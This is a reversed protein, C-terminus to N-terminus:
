EGIINWRYMKMVILIQTKPNSIEVTIKSYDIPCKGGCLYMSHIKKSKLRIISIM